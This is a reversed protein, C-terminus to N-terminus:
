IQWVCNLATKLQDNAMASEAQKWLQNYHQATASVCSLLCLIVFWLKKMM